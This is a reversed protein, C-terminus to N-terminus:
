LFSAISRSCPTFTCSHMIIILQIKKRSVILQQNTLEMRWSYALGTYRLYIYVVCNCLKKEEEREFQGVLLIALLVKIHVCYM